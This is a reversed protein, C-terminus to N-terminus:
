PVTESVQSMGQLITAETSEELSSLQTELPLVAQEPNCNAEAEGKNPGKDARAKLLEAELNKLEQELQVVRETCEKSLNPSDAAVNDTTGSPIDPVDTTGSPMDPVDTTGSPM